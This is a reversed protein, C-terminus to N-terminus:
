SALKQIKKYERKRIASSPIKMAERYKTVTRRAIKIGEENLKNVLADDSYINTGENSIIMKIKSKIAETSTGENSSSGGIGTNFFYKLEFTGRPTHIYKNNTVRSVTSEHMEIENAVDKLLLPKLFQTGKEFFEEQVKVIEESVRLITTARQHLSKVLWNANSLQTKIFKKGDKNNKSANNIESYYNHNILVRPLNSNNLEIRWKGNKNIKLFVDPIINQNFEFCYESLPKPNLSKIDSIMESLDDDDANCIIKLKNIKGAALLELNNLLKEISPDFRNKDKLQITLCEILNESFIGSPEFTKLINLICELEALEINLKNAINKKDGRFYGAEDLHEILQSAVLKEKNNSFNISIQENLFEFISKKESLSKEFYNYDTNTINEKNNTNYDYNVSDNICDDFQNDYDIDYSEDEFSEKEQNNDLDDITQPTDDFSNLKEDERELLPNKELESTVFENLEINSLQLINIAQRLQPTMLINQSQKLELRPTIAM